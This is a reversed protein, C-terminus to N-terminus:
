RAKVLTGDMMLKDGKKLQTVQGDKATVNGKYNVTSGNKLPVDIMMRITEGSRIWYVKGDSKMTIYDKGKGAAFSTVSAVAIVLILLFKRM